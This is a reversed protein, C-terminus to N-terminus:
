WALAVLEEEMTIGLEARFDAAAVVEPIPLVQHQWLLQQLDQGVVVLEVLVLQDQLFLVAGVVV